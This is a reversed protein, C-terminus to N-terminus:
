NLILNIIFCLALGIITPLLIAILTWKLSGTEKKITLTTTGCPFHILTFIITCLATIYTWGNNILLTKLSLLDLSKLSSSASYSMIAIPIVIENAPFGLIFSFLIVGDLGFLKAFPDLFNSIIRLISTDGIYTNSLLWIILGMPAAVVIARGLIYLTRDFISRIIVKGIKPKRFPPLELVFSSPIGKLITKSLLKSVLLTIIISLLILGFLILSSKFSSSIFFITILTILTPFRGNCPVFANTLIAILKERKSDIIRCGVVGCANCGFGMCMTLSQKGNAGAKNFLKDMNFAFRPLYGSDELLTFLPFFIAMPPLMVSIVWALTKYVGNVLPDVLWSPMNIIVLFNYINKQFGFLLNSLLTSPYNAGKITLWFIFGFLLLMIPIGTSKSTLIRDLKIYKKRNYNNASVVKIYIRCAELVNRKIIEKSLDEYKNNEEEIIKLLELDDHVDYNLYKNISDIISEDTLLKISLWRNNKYNINDDLYKNIRKISEEINNSYLIKNNINKKDSMSYITKKLKDLGNGNRASTCVIPIKLEKKLLDIDININRKKAEDILNICLIVNDMIEMTQFVINLNREITTADIVVVAVTPNYFAIFDRTVEEEKSNPTLSYAGPLDVLIFNEDNFTYKGFASTVTKGTWNGTHQNMGTLSNFITSKGVNPSGILAVVIDSENDKYLVDNDISHIGMSKSTLGM